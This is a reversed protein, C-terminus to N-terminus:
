GGHRDALLETWVLGACGLAVGVLLCGRGALSGTLFGLPDGGLLYGLAVGAVPLGALLRGTARPAALEAAVTDRVAEARSLQEAVADLTATMSAGTREALEWARALEGLGARGPAGAGQRLVPAVGGGMAQVAAAEALVPAQGAAAKLAAAPILGLKLMGSLLQASRVVEARERVANRRLRHRRWVWAAVVVVVATSLGVAWDVALAGVAGVVAAVLWATRRGPPRAAQPRHVALRGPDPPPWVSLWGAIAAALIALATM